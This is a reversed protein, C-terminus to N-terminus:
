GLDAPTEGEDTLLDRDAGQSLLYRFYVFYDCNVNICCITLVFKILKGLEWIFFFIAQM